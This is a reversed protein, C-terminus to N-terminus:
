DLVSSLGLPLNTLAIGETELFVLRKGGLVNEHMGQSFPCLAAGSWTSRLIVM